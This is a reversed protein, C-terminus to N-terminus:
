RKMMQELSKAKKGEMRRIVKGKIAILVVLLGIGTMMGLEYSTFQGILLSIVWCVIVSYIIYRGSLTGVSHVAGTLQLGLGKRRRPRGVM